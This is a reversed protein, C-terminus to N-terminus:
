SNQGSCTDRAWLGRLQRKYTLGRAVPLVDIHPLLNIYTSYCYWPFLEEHFFHTRTLKISKYIKM